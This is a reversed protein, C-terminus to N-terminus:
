VFRYNSTVGNKGLTEQLGKIADWNIQISAAFVLYDYSISSGNALTVQNNEPNLETVSEAIQNVGNPIVYALPRKTDNAQYAGDCVLILAPQYFHHEAPDIITIDLNAQQRRLKAAVSIGATGGGIIVVTHKQTSM